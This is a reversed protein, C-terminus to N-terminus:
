FLHHTFKATTSRQFVGIKMKKNTAFTKISLSEFPGTKKHPNRGNITAQGSLGLAEAVQIRKYM